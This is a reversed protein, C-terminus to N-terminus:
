DESDVQYAEKGTIIEAILALHAVYMPNIIQASRRLYELGDIRYPYVLWM